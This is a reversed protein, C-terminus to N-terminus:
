TAILTGNTWDTGHPWTPDTALARKIMDVDTIDIVGNKDVDGLLSIQIYLDINPNGNSDLRNSTWVIWISKDPLQTASPQM